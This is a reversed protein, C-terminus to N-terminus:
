DRGIYLGENISGPIPTPNYLLGRGTPQRFQNIGSELMKIQKRIESDTAPRISPTWRVGRIDRETGVIFGYTLSTVLTIREVTWVAVSVTALFKLGQSASPAVPGCPLDDFRIPDPNVGANYWPLGNGGIDVFELPQTPDPNNHKTITQLWRIRNCPLGSRDILIEVGHTFNAVRSRDPIGNRIPIPRLGNVMDVRPVARVVNLNIDIPICISSGGAPLPTNLQITSAVSRRLPENQPLNIIQSLRTHEIGYQDFIQAATTGIASTIPVREYFM